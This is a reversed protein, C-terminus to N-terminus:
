RARRLRAPACSRRACPRWNPARAGSSRSSGFVTPGSAVLVLGCFEDGLRVGLVRITAIGCLPVLALAVLELVVLRNERLRGALLGILAGLPVSSFM